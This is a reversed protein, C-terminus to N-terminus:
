LNVVGDGQGTIRANKIILLPRIVFAIQVNSLHLDTRLKYEMNITDPEQTGKMVYEVKRVFEISTKNNERSIYTQKLVYTNDM